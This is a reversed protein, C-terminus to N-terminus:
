PLLLDAPSLLTVGDIEYWGSAISDGTRVSAAEILRADDGDFLIQGNADIEAVLGVATDIWGDEFPEPLTEAFRYWGGILFPEILPFDEWRDSLDARTEPSLEGAGISWSRSAAVEGFSTYGESLWREPLTFAVCSGEDFISGEPLTFSRWLGPVSPAPDPQLSQQLSISIACSNEPTLGSSFSSGAFTIEATIPGPASAPLGQVAGEADVTFASYTLGFAAPFADTTPPTGSPTTEEESLFGRCSAGFLLLSAGVARM